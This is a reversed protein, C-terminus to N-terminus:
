TSVGGDHQQLEWTQRYEPSRQLLEQHSGRAILEGEDLVLITDVKELVTARHSIILTASSRSHDFIQELLFRETENDVASLVNDLIILKCPTYLGRSLSLRQKQGGSLLIGKEGVLTEEREPFLRVEDLMDSQYLVQQLPLASELGASGFQINESVTDSFLFPDQTITRVASRLDQRSLGTIDENDIFVTGPDIELYRNLCNVLTTKGAGVKGLIGVTQGPKIEFSINKLAAVDSGPYYYSLNEVRIQHTFLRERQEQPLHLQDQANVPRDLIRRMSELSVIGTQWASFVMGLSIFPMALLTAYSLLATLDGLSLQQEILYAGGVILILVKLLRDTYAIVPLVVTRVMTLRLSRDLIKLNERAFAGEAWGQIHHSKIVEIGSLFGVTSSSMEQLEVMRVRMMRRMFAIGKHAIAFTVMVPLICYLTLGPSIQYMKLPTLSLAFAINFVQLMVIGALARVGNIDNNVISILAGTEHERYFDPQMQMLKEFADDKLEREIARGPNFFLIRSVTRTVVMLLAFVIVAGISQGLQDQRDILTDGSLLDISEGLYLPITVALWNTLFIFVIGAAYAQKHHLIYRFFFRANSERTNTALRIGHPGFM